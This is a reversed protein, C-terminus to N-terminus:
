QEKSFFVACSQTVVADFNLYNTSLFSVSTMFSYKM